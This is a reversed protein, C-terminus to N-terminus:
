KARSRSIVPQGDDVYSAMQDSPPNEDLDEDLHVIATGRRLPVDFVTTSVVKAQIVAPLDDLM